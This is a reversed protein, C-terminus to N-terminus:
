PMDWDSETNAAQSSTLLCKDTSSTMSHNHFSLYKQFQEIMSPDLSSAAIGNNLHPPQKPKLPCKSKWHGKIKQDDLSKLRIEEVLLESVVSDVSPLPECHLISGRLRSLTAPETLALQDWLASMFSYFDQISSDNHQLARIDTELQYQKAFNSQTYLKALQDWMANATEYKALQLGISPTVSNNIWTIIKSNDVEWTELLVDYNDIKEDTPMKKVGSVYGWMLKGHHFNKMVYSWYTYNKGDLQISISQLSDDHEKLSRAMPSTKLLGIGDLELGEKVKVGFRLKLLMAGDAEISDDDTTTGKADDVWAKIFMGEIMKMWLGSGIDDRIRIGGGVVEGIRILTLEGGRSVGKICGSVSILGKLGPVSIFRVSALM